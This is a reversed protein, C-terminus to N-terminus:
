ITFCHQCLIIMESSKMIIKINYEVQLIYDHGRERFDLRSYILTQQLYLLTEGKLKEKLARLEEAEEESYCLFILFKMSGSAFGCCLKEQQKFTHKSKYSTPSLSSLPMM